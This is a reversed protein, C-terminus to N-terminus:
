PLTSASQFRLRLDRRTIPQFPSFLQDDLQEVFRLIGFDDLLFFPKADIDGFDTVLAQFTSETVFPISWEGRWRPGWQRSVRPTGGVSVRRSLGSIAGDGGGYASARPMPVGTTIYLEGLYPAASASVIDLQWSTPAFASGLVRRIASADAPVVTDRLVAGPNTRLNLTYGALGHGAPIIWTDLSPITAPSNWTALITRTGSFGSDKWLTVPDRDGLASIPFDTVETGPSITITAFDLYQKPYLIPASM